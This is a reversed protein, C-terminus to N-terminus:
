DTEKFILKLWNNLRQKFPLRVKVKGSTVKQIDKGLSGMLLEAYKNKGEEQMKGWDTTSDIKDMNNWYAEVELDYKKIEELDAADM